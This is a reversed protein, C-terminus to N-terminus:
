EGLTVKLIQESNYGTKGLTHEPGAMAKMLAIIKQRVAPDEIRFYAQLLTATEKADRKSYESGSEAMGVAEAGDELREFFYNVPVSLVKSLEYLRSSGVRNTGREYKQVQQFTVGVSRGLEEQSMGIMTRRHRILKGVHVDVPHATM